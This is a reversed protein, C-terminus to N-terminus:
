LDDASLDHESRVSIRRINDRSTSLWSSALRRTIFLHYNARLGYYGSGM